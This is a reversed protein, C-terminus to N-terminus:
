KLKKILEIDEKIKTKEDTDNTECLKCEYIILYDGKVGNFVQKKKESNCSHLNFVFIISILIIIKKM